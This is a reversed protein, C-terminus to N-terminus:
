KRQRGEFQFEKESRIDSVWSFSFSGRWTDISRALNQAFLLTIVLGGYGLIITVSVPPHGGQWRYQDDVYSSSRPVKVGM